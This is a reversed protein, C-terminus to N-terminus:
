GRNCACWDERPSRPYFHAAGWDYFMIIVKPDPFVARSTNYILENKRRVAAKVAPPDTTPSYAFQESDMCVGCVEVAAGMQKNAESIWGKVETLSAHWQDLEAQEGDTSSANRKGRFPGYWPSFNLNICPPSDKPRGLPAKVLSARQCAAVAM